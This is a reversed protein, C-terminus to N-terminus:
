ENVVIRLVFSSNRDSVRLSYNGSPLKGFDFQRTLSGTSFNDVERNILQGLTNFMEFQLEARPAGKMQLTFKGDNPNPFLAVHGAWEPLDNVGVILVIITQQYVISGCDNQATLSVTFTDSQQYTHVPNEESSTIGDGFDWFYSTANTSLNNFTVQGGVASTEFNATPAALIEVVASKTLQQTGYINTVQLTVDYVGPTTYVVEPNQLNSTGPTGGPFTWIWETPQGVSEDTFQVTLPACGKPQDGASFAPIPASGEITITQTFEATGCDNTAVLVVTYTGPSAYDHVPNSENSTNGDGFDWSYSQANFSGNSFEASLGGTQVTFTTVPTSNVQIIDTQMSTSSGAANTAILTASYTGPNSYTVTPNEENSTAPLGGPFQWTYSVANATSMNQFQVTFPTCGSTASVNFNAVPPTVVTLVQSTTDAGCNNTTILVVTYTGDTYTHVPSEEASTTNDGFNWSYTQGGNSINSFSIEAGNIATFFGATPVGGVVVYDTQTVTSNGAANSATLIVAYVGPTEYTVVPNTETSSAPNGGPFQWSYSAANSSSTNTFSVTLPACGNNGTATFSASPPTTVTLTQTSTATGCANSATLVVTYTGDMTYFHSPNEANSTGGDGFSWSYSTAGASANSFSYSAGNGSAVFNPSPVTGVNVFSNQTVNSSGVSNMATLTVSYIGPNAYVVTPNALTSTAPNGGPFLWVFSTANASSTNNFTVSLPACGNVGTATFNAVPPTVVTLVQTSTSTGCNNTSTLVVTYTGDVTYTHSPNAVTSSGGDGFDWSYTTAGTSTNAFSYINTSNTTTFGAVPSTVINVLNTQTITGSGAANMATFTVSYVGPTNYVVVPNELNSSSPTGGPFSWNFSTPNGASTNTFQVTLNNCGTTPAASFAATPSEVVVVTQTTTNDGCINTATLTVVFNGASTYTHSPNELISTNGDGFNWLFSTANATTNTFNVQFGNVASTFTTAPTTIVNIYNTQIATNSGATNTAVLTVTYLGPNAYVVTPNASTSTAPNGGPFQWEFSVANSSSSNNFQVTFPACGTTTAASFSATPPTVITVTQVSTSTGCANISTLVVTYIGDNAYTHEPNAMTSSQGDGFNWSYTTAGTSANTFTAIAGNVASSFSTAPVTQVSINQTATSPGAINTATLTATFVGPTNYVVVPNNETSTSPTGGPFSWSIGTANSSNNTFQVTLPGCGSTPTATFSAVPPTALVVSQTNNTNGCANTTTLVVNYVGGTAYTHVPNMLTSTQGDGFNWLFSTGNVSTNTFTVTLGNVAFSYTSSPLNQVNIFQQQSFVSSGLSNTATLTVNFVGSTQYVVVPNAQNSSTPTGGPFQWLYSIANPSSENDFSVTMPACGSTPAASFMATPATNINLTKTATGCPGTVTLIVTYYNAELYTHVPNQEFSLEGDGFDWEYGTANAAIANFTVTLGDVSSTFDASPPGVITVQKSVSSQISSGSNLVLTVNKVGPTNWIVVPNQLTSTAPTAGPFTWSYTQITGSSNDTFTIQQGACGPDPDWTFEPTPPPGTVCPVICGSSVMSNMKANIASTSAPSWANSSSVFPCMIWTGGSPCNDHNANFNHGMEHSTMCRLLESSGTFDQLCHYKNSNCAGNIYAIGVTSGDFDLNTWLEGLDFAVGFGGSNGWNRFNTLYTGANTSAGWPNAASVIQVVINFHLDHVFNSTYDGEVDNIVGINHAEVASVSGYKSLMSADSAIALDLQYCASISEAGELKEDIHERIHSHEADETGCGLDLNNRISAGEPYVLFLDKSYSPNSHWLPEIFIKKGNDEVYGYIFDSALTLRLIDDPNNSTGKYPTVGAPSESEQDTGILRTKYDPSLIDNVEMHLSWHYHGLQLHTVGGDSARQAATASFQAADIRFVQWETFSQDLKSDSVHVPNGTFTQSFAISALLTFGTLFALRHLRLCGTFM